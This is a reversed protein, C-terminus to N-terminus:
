NLFYIVWRNKIADILPTGGFRDRAHVSAGVSLLYEVVEVSGECAALHLPTRWDYDALNM